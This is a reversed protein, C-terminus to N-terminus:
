VTYCTVKPHKIRSRVEDERQQPQFTSREWMTKDQLAVGHAQLWGKRSPIHWKATDNHGGHVIRLQIKATMVRVM